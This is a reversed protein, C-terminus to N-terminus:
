PEALAHPYRRHCDPRASQELEEPRWRPLQTEREGGADDREGEGGGAALGGEPPRRRRPCRGGVKEAGVVEDAIVARAAAVRRAARLRDIVPAHDRYINGIVHCGLNQWGTEKQGRVRHRRRVLVGDQQKETVLGMRLVYKRSPARRDTVVVGLHDD